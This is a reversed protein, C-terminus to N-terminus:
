RGFDDVCRQRNGFVATKTCVIWMKFACRGGDDSAYNLGALYPRKNTFSDIRAKVLCPHQHLKTSSAVGDYRRLGKSNAVTYYVPYKDRREDYPGYEPCWPDMVIVHGPTAGIITAYHFTSRCDSKGMAVAISRGKGIHHVVWNYFMATDFSSPPNALVRQYMGELLFRGRTPVFWSCHPHADYLKNAYAKAGTARAGNAGLAGAFRYNVARTVAWCAHSGEDTDLTNQSVIPFGGLLIFRNDDSALSRNEVDGYDTDSDVGAVVDEELGEEDAPDEEICTLSSDAWECEGDVLCVCQGNQIVWEDDDDGCECEESNRLAGRRAKSLNSAQTKNSIKHSNAFTQKLRM